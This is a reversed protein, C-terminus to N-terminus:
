VREAGSCVALFSAEECGIGALYAHVMKSDLYIWEGVELTVPEYFETHVEVRGELVFVFEEGSDKLLPSCKEIDKARTSVWIPMMRKCRLEACLYHHEFVDTKGRLLQNARGISRWWTKAGPSEVPEGFLDSWPIPLGEVLQRLREYGLTLRGHEVKSLTSVPIGTRKSMEKLTLRRRRRVNRLIQALTSDSDYPLKQAVHILGQKVHRGVTRPKMTNVPRKDDLARVSKTRSRFSDDDNRV